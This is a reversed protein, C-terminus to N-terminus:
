QKTFILDKTEPLYITLDPNGPCKGPLIVMDDPRYHWTIQTANIKKLYINGWGVGCNTGSYYLIVSNDYSRIRYSSIINNQLNYNQTDQLVTGSSNKVVYKVVLADLYYNKDVSNELKNEVKTIYLTIEKGNFNAKYTGVYPVLEDNTDKVYANNPINTLATNLPLVQTKCSLSSLTLGLLIIATKLYTIKM